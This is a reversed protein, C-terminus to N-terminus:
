GIRSARLLRDMDKKMRGPDAAVPWRLMLNGLPDLLWICDELRAAGGAPLPLFPMLEQTSARVFHTGDFERLLLTTTPADDILLLVREIREREKGTATRVQRMNWLKTRCADLCEARDVTVMVWNGRLSGLEFRAGDLTRLALAPAPRQPEILHGYNTRGTPQFVYYALYSAVVPAICALALLYLPRMRRWHDRWKMPRVVANVRRRWRRHPEARRAM